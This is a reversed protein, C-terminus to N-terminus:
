RSSCSTTAPIAHEHQVGRGTTPSLGMVERRFPLEDISPVEADLERAYKHGGYVAAAILGPSLCDGIATM